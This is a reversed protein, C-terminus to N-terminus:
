IFVINKVVFLLIIWHHLGLEAEQGTVPTIPPLGLQHSNVPSRVPGTILSRVPSMVPGTVHGTVPGTILSRVLSRVPGTVHGTVPGNVPCTILSRVPSM